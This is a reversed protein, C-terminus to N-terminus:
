FPERRSVCVEVGTDISNNYNLKPLPLENFLPGPTAGHGLAHVFNGLSDELVLLDSRSDINLTPGDYLPFTGFSGGSFYPFETHDDAALELYGAVPTLAEGYGGEKRHHITIITGARMHNWNFPESFIIAPQWATQTSDCDQLKWYHMNTNDKIVVLETWEDLPSAANYYSSIVVAPTQSFSPVIGFLFFLACFLVSNKVKIRYKFAM